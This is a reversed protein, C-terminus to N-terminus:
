VQFTTGPGPTFKNRFDFETYVGNKRFAAGNKFQFGAEEVAQLMGAAEVVEMCAPLLSEGISFRPFQMKELVLVDIGQKNLLAAATSGSPGAGIIVVQRQQIDMVIIRQNNNKSQK